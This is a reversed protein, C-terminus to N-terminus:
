LNEFKSLTDYIRQLEEGCEIFNPRDNIDQAWCREALAKYSALTGDPFQPRVGAVIQEMIQIPHLDGWIRHETVAELMVIGFAYVDSQHTYRGTTLVSPSLHSITGFSVTQYSTEDLNLVRSLGFDSVKATYGCDKSLDHVILINEAKLDAHVIHMWQLYRLGAVVDLLLSVITSLPFVGCKNGLSGADCYEMIVISPRVFQRDFTEIVHVINVHSLNKVYRLEVDGGREMIKIAVTKDHYTGKYVRGYAGTGLLIGLQLGSPMAMPNSDISTSATTGSEKYLGDAPPHIIKDSVHIVSDTNVESAISQPPQYKRKLCIYACVFVALVIGTGGIVILAIGWGPVPSSETSGANVSSLQKILCTTSDAIDLCAQDVFYHCQSVINVARLLAQGARNPLDIDVALDDVITADGLCVDSCYDSVVTYNQTGAVRKSRPATALLPRLPLCVLARTTTNIFQVESNNSLRLFNTDIDSIFSTRYSLILNQFTITKGPELFILGVSEVANLSTKGYIGEVLVDRGVYISTNTSPLTLMAPAISIVSVSADSLAALFNPTTDVLVTDTCAPAYVFLIVSITWAHSIRM